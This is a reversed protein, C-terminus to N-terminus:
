SGGVMVMLIKMLSDVPVVAVVLGFMGLVPVIIWNWLIVMALVVGLINKWHITTKEVVETTTEIQGAENDVHVDREVTKTKLFFEIGRKALNILKELVMM